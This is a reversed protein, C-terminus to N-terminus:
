AGSRGADPSRAIGALTARLEAIGTGDRASTVLVLPHAGQQRAAFKEAEAIRRLLEDRRPLDCKTLVLQFAVASEGLLQMIERDSAKPGHRADILVLVRALNPRGRLYDRILRNWAEVKAKPAEAYGYGPLDVLVLGGGIRFFNLEQTRGPTKSTRALGHRGALANLLSSKGVNSRGAVAVEPLEPEPLRAYDAVGLVFEAPGAFLRRGQELAEEDFAPPPAVGIEATSVGPGRGGTGDPALM